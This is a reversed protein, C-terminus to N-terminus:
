KVKITVLSKTAGQCDLQREKSSTVEKKAPSTIPCHFELGGLFTNEKFLCCMMQLILKPHWDEM